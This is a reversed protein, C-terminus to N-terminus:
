QVSEVTGAQGTVYVTNTGGDFYGQYIVEGVRYCHGATYVHTQPYNVAATSCQSISNGAVRIIRNGTYYPFGDQVRNAADAAAVGASPGAKPDPLRVVRPPTSTTEKKELTRYTTDDRVVEVADGAERRLSAALEATNERAHVVVKGQRQDVYWSSVTARRAADPAQLVADVKALADQLATLSRPRSEFELRIGADPSRRSRAVGTVRDRAKAPDAGDAVAVVFRKADHDYWSGAFEAGNRHVVTSLSNLDQEDVYLGAATDDAGAPLAGVTTVTLLTAAIAAFRSRLAM